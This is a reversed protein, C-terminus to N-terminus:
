VLAKDRQQESTQQALWASGSYHRHSFSLRIHGTYTPPPKHSCGADLDYASCEERTNDAAEECLGSAMAAIVTELYTKKAVTCADVYEGLSNHANCQGTAASTDKKDGKVLHVTLM